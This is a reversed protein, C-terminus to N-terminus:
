DERHNRRYESPTQRCMRRFAVYFASSSSFGVREAIQGIPQQRLPEGTLLEKAAEIRYRNLLEFFGAQFESNIVQSLHNVSCNMRRALAPLTLDADLYLRDFEMLSLLRRKYIEIQAARMGSKRYKNEAVAPEDSVSAVLDLPFKYYDEISTVKDGRITLFEAGRLQASVDAPNDANSIQYQFAITSNGIVIEGILDYRLNRRKFDHTLYQVLAEGSLKENTPVDFYVGDNTMLGVIAAPDCRNWASIYEEVLEAAQMDFGM